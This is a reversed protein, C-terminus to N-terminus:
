EAKRGKVELERKSGRGVGRGGAGVGEPHFWGEEGTEPEAGGRVSSDERGQATPDNQEGRRSKEGNGGEKGGSVRGCPTEGGEGRM